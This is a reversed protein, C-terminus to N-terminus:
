FRAALGVTVVPYTKLVGVSNQFENRAQALDSQFQPTTSAPGYGNLTTSVSRFVVGVDSVVYVGPRSRGGTGVGVYVGSGLEATGNVSGIQAGTYTTGNLTFSGGADPVGNIDLHDNGTVVGASVRFVGAPYYDIFGSINQLHVSGQYTLGDSDGNHTFQLSGSSVRLETHPAISHSLEVGYGLTSAQVGVSTSNTVDANAAAPFAIVCIAAALGFLAGSNKM